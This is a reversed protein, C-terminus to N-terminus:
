VEKSKYQQSIHDEFIKLNDFYHDRCKDYENLILYDVNSDVQKELESQAAIFAHFMDHYQAVEDRSMKAIFVPNIMSNEKSNALSFQLVRM